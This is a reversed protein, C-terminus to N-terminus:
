KLVDLVIRGNQAKAVQLEFAREGRAAGPLDTDKQFIRSLQAEVDYFELKAGRVVTVDNPDHITPRGFTLPAAPPSAEGNKYGLLDRWAIETEQSQDASINRQQYQLQL